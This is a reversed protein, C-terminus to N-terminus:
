IEMIKKVVKKFDNYAQNFEENLVIFDFHEKQELEKIANKLRLEIVHDPETGRKKLREELAAVSPPEIFITQAKQGYIEKIAKAGQVDLDFLLFKEEKLGKDIFSKSTGYYNDHVKFWEVFKKDKIGKEFEATTVFYYNKGNQEGKRMPRTTTSVSWNLGKVEECLKEILTSKGTGSPAVIVILKSM